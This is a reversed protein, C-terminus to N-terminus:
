TSEYPIRVAPRHADRRIRLATYITLVGFIVVYLGILWAVLVAGWVPWLLIMLGLLVSVLGTLLHTWEGQLERRMWVAMVIQMLGTLLAWAGIVITLAFLTAAPWLFTVVGVVLGAVAGLILPIRRGGRAHVAAIGAFIGDVFMYAGFVFALVFLTVGPWVFAALGLVVALLGRALLAGWHRALDGLM